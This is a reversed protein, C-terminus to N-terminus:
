YPFDRGSPLVVEIQAGHGVTHWREATAHDVEVLINNRLMWQKTALDGACDVVLFSEVVGQHQLHWINGIQSCDLVAIYGDTPPLEIPLPHATPRTQRVRIVEAMRGPAYQSAIGLMLVLIARAIRFPLCVGSNLM